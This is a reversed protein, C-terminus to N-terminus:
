GFAVVFSGFVHVIGKKNELSNINDEARIEPWSVAHQSWLVVVSAEYHARALANATRCPDSRSRTSSKIYSVARNYLLNVTLLKCSCSGFIPLSWQHHTSVQHLLPHLFRRRPLFLCPPHCRSHYQLGVFVGVCVPVVCVGPARSRKALLMPPPFPSPLRVTMKKGVFMLFWRSVLGCPGSLRLM